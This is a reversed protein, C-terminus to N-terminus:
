VERRIRSFTFRGTMQFKGLDNVSRRLGRVSIRETCSGVVYAGCPRAHAQCGRKSTYVCERGDDDNGHVKPDAHARQSAQRRASRIGNASIFLRTRMNTGAPGALNGSHCQRLPSRAQRRVVEVYKGLRTMWAQTHCSFNNALMRSDILLSGRRRPKV